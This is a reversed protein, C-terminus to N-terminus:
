SFFARSFCHFLHVPQPALFLVSPVLYCSVTLMSGGADAPNVYGQGNTGVGDRKVMSERSSVGAAASAVVVTPLTFLLALTHRISLSRRATGCSKPEM